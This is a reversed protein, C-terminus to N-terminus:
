DPDKHTCLGDWAACYDCVVPEGFQVDESQPSYSCHEPYDHVVRPCMSVGCVCVLVTPLEVGMYGGM